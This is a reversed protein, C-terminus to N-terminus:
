STHVWNHITSYLSRSRKIERRLLGLRARENGESKSRSKVRTLIESRANRRRFNILRVNRRTLDRFSFPTTEHRSVCGKTNIISDLIYEWIFKGEKTSISTSARRREHRFDGVLQDILIKSYQLHTM